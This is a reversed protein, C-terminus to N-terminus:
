ESFLSALSPLMVVDDFMCFWCNIKKEGRLTRAVFVAAQWLWTLPLVFSSYLISSLRRSIFNQFVLEYLCLFSYYVPHHQQLAQRHAIQQQQSSLAQKEKSKLALQNMLKKQEKTEQSEKKTHAPLHQYAAHSHPNHHNHFHQPQQPQHYPQRTNFHGTHPRFNAGHHGYNNFQQQQQQNQHQHQLPPSTQHQYAQHVGFFSADPSVGTTRGSPSIGNGNQSVSPTTDYHSQQNQHNQYNQHNQHQQPSRRVSENYQHFEEQERSRNQEQQRKTLEERQKRVLEPNYYNLEEEAARQESLSLKSNLFQNSNEKADDEEFKYNRPAKSQSSGNRHFSAFPHAQM